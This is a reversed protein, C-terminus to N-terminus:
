FYISPHIKLSILVAPYFYLGSSIPSLPTSSLTFVKLLGCLCPGGFCPKFELLLFSVNEMELRLFSYFTPASALLHIFKIISSSHSGTPLSTNAGHFMFHPLWILPIPSAQPPLFLNSIIMKSVPLSIPFNVWTAPTQPAITAMFTTHHWDLKWHPKRWWLEDTQNGM